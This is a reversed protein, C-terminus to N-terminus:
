HWSKCGRGKVRVPSGQTLHGGGVGQILGQCLRVKKTYRVSILVSDLDEFERWNGIDANKNDLCNVFNIVKEEDRKRM